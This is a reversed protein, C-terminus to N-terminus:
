EQQDILLLEDMQKTALMTLGKVREQEIEELPNWPKKEPPALKLPNKLKEQLATMSGDQNHRAKVLTMAIAKQLAETYEPHHQEVYSLVDDDNKVDEEWVMKKVLEREKILKTIKSPRLLEARRSFDM